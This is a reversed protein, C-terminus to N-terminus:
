DLKYLIYKDNNLFISLNRPLAGNDKRELLFHIENKEMFIKIEDNTFSTVCEDWDIQAEEFKGNNKQRIYEIEIQGNCLADIRQLWEFMGKPTFLVNKFTAYTPIYFDSSVVTKPNILITDGTNQLFISLSDNELQLSGGFTEISNEINRVPEGKWSAYVIPSICIVLLLIKFFGDKNSSLKLNLFSFRKELSLKNLVELFFYALLFHLSFFSLYITRFSYLSFIIQNPFFYLSLFFLLFLINGIFGVMWIFIIKQDYNKEKFLLHYGIIGHILLHIGFAIKVRLGSEIIDLYPTRVYIWGWVFKQIDYNDSPSFSSLALYVAFFGGFSFYLLSNNLLLRVNALSLKKTNITEILFVSGLLIIAVLLGNSPHILTSIGLFLTSALYRKEMLFFVSLFGLPMSLARPAIGM